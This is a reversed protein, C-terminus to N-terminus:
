GGTITVDTAAGLGRPAGSAGPAASSGPATSPGGNAGGNGGGRGLRGSLAVQVTTGTAVDTPKASAQHHYTTSADIPVDLTQGGALRLTLHDAAVATVTGKITLGAGGAAGAGGGFGNGGNGFGNAGNGNGGAFGNGGNGGNGRGAGFGGTGPGTAATTPPATVRGAAFAVGGVAFLAALALVLTALSLGGRHRVPVAALVAPAPGFSPPAVPALRPIPDTAGDARSPLDTRREDTV